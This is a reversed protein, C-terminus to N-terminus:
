RGGGRLTITRQDSGASFTQVAIDVDIGEDGSVLWTVKEVGGSGDLLGLVTRQRGDLISIGEESITAVAPSPRQCRRGQHTPYPLFGTNAVWVDIQWVGDNKEEVEVKDIAVKPLWSVLNRVFPLQIGILSDIFDASPAVTSYPIMGGIEVQGLTPHDYSQWAVFADPNYDYLAQETEDAGGAEEKKKMKRMMEAMKKTDMMGGQLGMVVMEATYQAPAGSAKLFADIKETGLAIFEENSMKELEDPTIMGEEKEEPEEKKAEPLTWFDMSFAPVGYQFYGWEQVSGSPFEKPKLRKDDIGAEKLFEKYRESIENWYPLDKRDPNVAAGVGLFQLVMEETLDQIGTTEKGMEILQEMTFEEDPDIGMQRSMWEPLKYTDQTAESKKSSEPVNLLSNTRDFVLIMAIEPHDFAFRLVARTEAESAAYLGDTNTYQQFDHPFNHGPVAGGPGDENIDGDGDNDIGERFTRYKGREGKGSEARKMLVPNDEIEIWRGEPHVQRMMTIYGDGNLDDPGDEDVANDKDDNVPRANLPRSDLPSKFFNAYGDPNGLPFIYWRLSDLSTKWEGTLQSILHMAGRTAPPCDGVMNAVLLIAPVEKDAPGLEIMLIDRGGPTRGLTQVSAVDKHEKEITGLEAAIRDPPRYGLEAGGAFVLSAAALLAILSMVVFSYIRM